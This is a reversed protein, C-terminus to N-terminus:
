CRTHQQVIFKEYINEKCPVFNSEYIRRLSYLVRALIFAVHHRGFNKETSYIQMLKEGNNPVLNPM